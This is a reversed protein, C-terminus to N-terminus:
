TQKHTKAWSRKRWYNVMLVGWPHKRSMWYPCVAVEECGLPLGLWGLAQILVVWSLGALMLRSSVLLLRLCSFLHQNDAGPNQNTEKDKEERVGGLEFECFDFLIAAGAESSFSPLFIFHLLILIKKLICLSPFRNSNKMHQYIKSNDGGYYYSGNIQETVPVTNCEKYVHVYKIWETDWPILIFIVM